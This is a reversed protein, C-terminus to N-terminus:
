PIGRLRRNHSGVPRRTTAGTDPLIPLAIDSLVHHERDLEQWRFCCWSIASGAWRAARCVAVFKLLWLHRWQIIRLLCPRVVFLPADLQLLPPLVRRQARATFKRDTAQPMPSHCGPCRGLSNPQLVASRQHRGSWARSGPSATPARMRKAQRAYAPAGVHVRQRM